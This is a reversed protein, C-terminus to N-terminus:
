IVPKANKPLAQLDRLVPVSKWMCPRIIIPIVRLGEEKRRELLRRVEVEKIFRSNLFSSSILLLALDCNKMATEIAKYWEEGPQIERDQWIKFVKQDQLPALMKVLEDKYEEDEHSYSIFIKKTDEDMIETEEERESNRPMQGENQQTKIFGEKEKLRNLKFEELDSTLKNLCGRLYIDTIRERIVLDNIRHEFAQIVVSSDEAAILILDHQFDLDDMNQLWLSFLLDYGERIIERSSNALMNRIAAFQNEYPKTM